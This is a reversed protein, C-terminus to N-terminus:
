GFAQKFAVMVALFTDRDLDVEAPRDPRQPKGKKYEIPFLAIFGNLSIEYRLWETRNYIDTLKMEFLRIALPDMLVFTCFLHTCKNIHM